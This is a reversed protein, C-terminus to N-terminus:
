QRIELISSWPVKRGDLLVYDYNGDDRKVVERIRTSIKDIRSPGCTPCSTYEAIVKTGVPIPHNMGM